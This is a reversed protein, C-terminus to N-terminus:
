VVLRRCEGGDGAGAGGGTGAAGETRAGGGAGSGAGRGRGGGGGDCERDRWRNFVLSTGHSKPMSSWTITWTEAAFTLEKGRTKTELIIQM